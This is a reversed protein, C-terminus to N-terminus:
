PHQSLYLCNIWSSADEELDLWLKKVYICYYEVVGTFLSHLIPHLIRKIDCCPIDEVFFSTEQKKKKSGNYANELCECYIECHNFVVRDQWPNTSQVSHIQQKGM